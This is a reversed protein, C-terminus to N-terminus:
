GSDAWVGVGAGAVYVAIGVPIVTGPQSTIPTGGPGVPYLTRLGKDTAWMVIRIAALVCLVVPFAWGNGQRQSDRFGAAAIGVAFAILLWGGHQILTNNEVMRFVRAPEDHPLFAAIAM